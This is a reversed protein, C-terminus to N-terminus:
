GTARFLDMAAPWVHSQCGSKLEIVDTAALRTCINEYSLNFREGTETGAGTGMGTDSEPSKMLVVLFCILCSESVRPVHPFRQEFGSSDTLTRFGYSSSM